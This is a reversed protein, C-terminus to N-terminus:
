IHILSLSVGTVVVLQNRPIDVDVNQLNHARAGRIRIWDGDLAGNADGNTQAKKRAGNKAKPTGGSTAKKSSSQRNM